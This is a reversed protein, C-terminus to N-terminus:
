GTTLVYLQMVQVGVDTSGTSATINFRYYQYATSTSINFFSPATASGLLATTSTLLTTFTTGDNSAAINWATINRGAIPRAKLAVRWITIAEPCKIQLWGTTTGGPTVWSGNANDGNLWNFAGYPNFAGAAM